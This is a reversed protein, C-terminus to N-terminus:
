SNRAAVFTTGLQEGAYQPAPLAGRDVKGSPTLPMRELLVYAAPCMYDPLRERLFTRLPGCDAVSHDAPVIYAVLRKDGPTDERAIVVAQRVAAHEALAMEIEAPEIRFGRIKVQDDMRGLFEINGDPLYRVLDGTRYMRAGPVSSFPDPLFKEATLEPRNLYGRALGDGGIYLEGDIGVPASKRSADLVYLRTNTTPRGIPIMGGTENGSS